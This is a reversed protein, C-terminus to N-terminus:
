GWYKSMKNGCEGTDLNYNSEGVLFHSGAYVGLALQKWAAVVNDRAAEFITMFNKTGGGPVVLGDIFTPDPSSPYGLGMEYIHRGLLFLGPAEEAVEDVLSKFCSVWKRMDDGSGSFHYEDYNDAIMNRWTTEVVAGKSTLQGDDGVVHKFISDIHETAQLTGLGTITEYVYVDQNMECIGHARKNQAYPGVKENVVPHITMDTVVHSLYGALWAFGREKDDGSLNKVQNVGGLLAGVVNRTHMADALEKASNDLICLYPLDPSIAGFEILPFNALLAVSAESPAADRMENNWKALSSVTIALHTFTGAM